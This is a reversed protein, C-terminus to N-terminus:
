SRNKAKILDSINKRFELSIDDLDSHELHCFIMDCRDSDSFVVNERSHVQHTGSFTLAQNNKLTFKKDNVIIPWDITSNLQIDFTLMPKKFVSDVHNGLNPPIHTSNDYRAFQIGLINLKKGYEREIINEITDFIDEAGDFRSNFEKIYFVTQGWPNENKIKDKDCNEVYSYIRDIQEQTFINDIIKNEIDPNM